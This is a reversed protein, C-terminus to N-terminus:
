GDCSDLGELDYFGTGHEAMAILLRTPQMRAGLGALPKLMQLQQAAGVGDAWFL